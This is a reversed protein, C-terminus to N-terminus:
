GTTSLLLDTAARPDIDWELAFCRAVIIMQLEATIENDDLATTQAALNPETSTGANEAQVRAALGGVITVLQETVPDGPLERLKECAAAAQSTLAEAVNQVKDHVRQETPLCCIGSLVQLADAAQDFTDTLTSSHPERLKELGEPNPEPWVSSILTMALSPVPKNHRLPVFVYTEGPRQAASLAAQLTEVAAFWDLLSEVDVSVRYEIMTAARHVSDFLNARLGTEQCLDQIEERREQHRQKKAVRYADATRRLARTSSGQLARKTITVTDTSDNALEDAVACIDELVALLNDLSPPHGDLGVLQWPENVAGNLNKGIVTEAIYAALARYEAPRKHFRPIVNGTIAVILDFPHNTLQPSEQELIATDGIRSRGYPPRLNRGKDNLAQLRRDLGPAVPKKTVTATGIRRALDAAEDLLPLAAALRATDADAVLAIAIRTRAQIWAAGPAARDNARPLRSVGRVHGGIALEKGGAGLAQVDASEIRPLCRLMTRALSHAQEDPDGQLTDSHHLFRAVGVPGGARESVELRTIWPNDARIREIVTTEGGISEVLSRALGADADYAAAVCNALAQLPAERLASALTPREAIANAVVAAFEAGVGALVALLQTAKGIDSTSALLRAIESSGIAAVLDDRSARETTAVMEAWSKNVEDPFLGGLEIEGVAFMFVLPRVAIPIARQEAIENWGLARERFDALRLGQLYAAVRDVELSDGCAAEIVINRADPNDSLMAAVFRHLQSTPVLPIVRGITKALVPPPLEHVADCIATSRLRHLGGIRGDREVVLHEADLRWLAERLAADSLECARAVDETSVTASWRDAVSALALVELEHHRGERIRRTIQDDIVDRLRQGRTLMHTFELTLGDSQDFAERWHAADTAGRRVLGEHITEAAHEDLRVEVTACEAMDGLTILDEGRATAVLLMGPVSAAEARLRAWGAFEGTGASDVLFGVRSLPLALYARALRVILPVDEDALRRVRYWLVGPLEQPLTWLVASKGVGSPGAIVVASREKLGSSIEGVVDPRHVVLGSAVHFPQTAEGEYFRGGDDAAERYSYELTECIGESVAANLTESDILEALREITGVLETVNLVRRGEYDPRANCDAADAVVVRLQCAVSLLGVQPIDVLGGLLSGTEDVIEDWSIVVLVTSSLLRDIDAVPIGRPECGVTLSRLLNSTDPLSEALTTEWDGSPPDGTVARELVVVLRAGAERRATHREWADLIHKAADSAPFPGLHEGRSKVQVHRPEEGELSVDELGEPVVADARISGAAVNAALWAGVADQFHFGRGSWAGQRSDQWQSALRRAAGTEDTHDDRERAALRGVAQARHGQAPPRPGATRKRRNKKRKGAMDGDDCCGM